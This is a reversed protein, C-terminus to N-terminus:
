SPLDKKAKLKFFTTLKLMKLVKMIEPDLHTMTITRKSGSLHQVLKVFTAIATSDISTVADMNFEIDKTSSETAKKLKELMDGANVISLTSDTFCIELVSDDNVQIMADWVEM